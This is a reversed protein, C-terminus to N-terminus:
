VNYANNAQNMLEILKNKEELIKITLHQCEVTIKRNREELDMIQMDKMHLEDTLEDIADDKEAEEILHDSLKTEVFVLRAQLDVM